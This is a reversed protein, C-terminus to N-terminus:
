AATSSRLKTASLAFVYWQKWRNLDCLAPNHPDNGGSM